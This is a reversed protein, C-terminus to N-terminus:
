RRSCRWRSRRPKHLTASACRRLPPPLLANVARCFLDKFLLLQECARPGSPPWSVRSSHRRPRPRNASACGRAAPAQPRDPCPLNVTFHRAQVHLLAGAKSRARVALSDNLQGNEDELKELEEEYAVCRNQLEFNLEEFQDREAIADAKEDTLEQISLLTYNTAQLFSLTKDGSPSAPQTLRCSM